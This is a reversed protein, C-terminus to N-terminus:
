APPSHALKGLRELAPGYAAAAAALGSDWALPPAGTAARVRNHAALLRAPLNAYDLAPQGEPRAERIMRGEAWPPRSACGLLLLAVIAVAPTMTRFLGGGGKPERRKRGGGPSAVLRTRAM